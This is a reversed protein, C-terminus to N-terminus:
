ITYNEKFGVDVGAVYKVTLTEDKRIVQSRLKEQIARAAEVTEPWALDKISTRM